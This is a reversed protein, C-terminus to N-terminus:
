KPGIGTGDIAVREDGDVVSRSASSATAGPASSRTSAIANWGAPL